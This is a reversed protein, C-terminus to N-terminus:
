GRKGGCINGRKRTVSTVARKKIVSLFTRKKEGLIENKGVENLL